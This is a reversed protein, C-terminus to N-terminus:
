AVLGKVPGDPERAPAGDGPATSEADARKPLEIEGTEDRGLQSLLWDAGVVDGEGTPPDTPRDTPKDTPKETPKEDGKGPGRTDDSM